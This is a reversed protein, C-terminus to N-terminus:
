KRPQETNPVIQSLPILRFGTQPEIAQKVASLTQPVASQSKSENVYTDPILASLGKGLAKKM